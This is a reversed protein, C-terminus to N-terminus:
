DGVPGGGGNQSRWQQIRSGIGSPGNGGAFGGPGSPPVGQPATGQGPRAGQLGAPLNGQGDRVARITAARQAAQQSIDIDVVSPSGDDPPAPSASTESVVFGSGLQLQSGRRAVYAEVSLRTVGPGEPLGDIAITKVMLGRPTARGRVIVRQGDFRADPGFLSLGGISLLWGRYVAPGVVQDMRTGAPEVLRADITGDLRRIGSIAVREGVTFAGTGTTGMDVTQGLVVMRAGDLAAIAGVVESDILIRDTVLRGREPTAVTKVVQGIMLDRVSRRRGDIRVDANDPYSIRDGNVYISGFRQISGLFGIAGSGPLATIGTGGIGRDSPPTGDALGPLIRMGVGAVLARLIGRRSIKVL